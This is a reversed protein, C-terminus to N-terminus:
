RSQRKFTYLIGGNDHSVAILEWGHEGVYNLMITNGNKGTVLPVKMDSLLGDISENVQSQEQSLWAARGGSLILQAYEWRATKKEIYAGITVFGISLLVMIIVCLKWYQKM